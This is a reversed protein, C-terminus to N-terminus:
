TIKVHTDAGLPVNIEYGYGGWIYTGHQKSVCCLPTRHFIDDDDSVDGM